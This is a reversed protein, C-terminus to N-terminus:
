NLYLKMFKWYKQLHKPIESGEYPLIEIFGSSKYLKHATIMIVASDLYITKYCKKRAYLILGNLIKKGLGLGRVEPSVFMRKIECDSLMLKKLAGLGVINDNPDSVLLLLGEPPTYNSINSLINRIYSERNSMGFETLFDFNLESKPLDEAWTFYQTLHDIFSVKHVNENIALLQFHRPALRM